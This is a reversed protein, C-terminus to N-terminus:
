EDCKGKTYEKAKEKMLLILMPSDRRTQILERQIKNM